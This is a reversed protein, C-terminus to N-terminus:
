PEYYGKGLTISILVDTNKVMKTFEKFSIKGNRNLDAEIIIKDMRVIIKLVIFLEGNSIYSDCNINYVKFAFRLKEEKNGKLSFASLGSIFEQFNVDSGGDKNFIAIIRTILPNSSVSNDILCRLLFLYIKDLKIFRKCLRNVKDRNFNLGLAINDLIASNANGM